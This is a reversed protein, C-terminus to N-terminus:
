LDLSPTPFLRNNSVSLKNISAGLTIVWGSHLEATLQAFGFLQRNSFEDDSQLAGAAGGSNDAVRITAFGQQYELGANAKWLIHESEAAYEFVTRGGTHPETRREFNRIAPNKLETFAGYATTTNSWRENFRHEYRIGAMFMKTNIAAHAERASPSVGAAPRSAKPNASFEQFTLAGPTQYYLDGYLFHTSLSGKESVKATADWTFSRRKMQTHDRYGDSEQQQYNITNKFDSTGARVN